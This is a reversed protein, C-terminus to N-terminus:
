PQSVPDLTWRRVIPNPDAVNITERRTRYGEAEVRIEHTGPALRVVVPTPGVERGDVFLTSWPDTAVTLSAHGTAPAPTVARPPDARPRPPPQPPPSEVRVTEPVAATLPVSDLPAPAAAAAAAPPAAATTASDTSGPAASPMAKPHRLMLTATAAIGITGAAVVWPWRARRTVVLPLAQTRAGSLRVTPASSDVPAASRGASPAGLAEAFAEISPFRESPRKHLTRSLASAFAAPVDDRIAEIPDPHEHVQKYIVTHLSEGEFVPRGALLSYGVLGLAYQDARGDVAEGKAQEPAMYQPTGVIIGTGTLGTAGEVAKAIGFDTLLIRGELDLLINAPKVDRHVIGRTHAHGLAFSADVLIRRVFELPQPGEALKRELSTGSVFKMVFFELGGVSEVSYIPIINPHDLRAATRAEQRFRQVLHQDRALELPLVKIAVQRGLAIDEALFVSGMGGRGLIGQLRYRSGLVRVLRAQLEDDPASRVLLTAPVPTLMLGCNPCAAAEAPLPTQCRACALANM